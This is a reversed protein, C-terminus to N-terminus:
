ESVEWSPFRSRLYREESVLAAFPLRTAFRLAIAGDGVRVVTGEVRLEPGSQFRVVGTVDDGLDPGGDPPAAFRLGHESLDVVPLTAGDLVLVPRTPEPYVLRRSARRELSM